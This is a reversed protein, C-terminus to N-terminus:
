PMLNELKHLYPRLKAEDFIKNTLHVAGCIISLSFLIKRNARLGFSVAVAAGSKSLAISGLASFLIM